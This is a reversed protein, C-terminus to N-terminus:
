NKGRTFIGMKAKWSVHPINANAIVINVLM